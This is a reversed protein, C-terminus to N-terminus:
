RFILNALPTASLLGAALLRLVLELILLFNGAAEREEVRIFLDWIRPGTEKDTNM